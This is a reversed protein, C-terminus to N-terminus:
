YVIYDSKVGFKIEGKTETGNCNNNNTINRNYGNKLEFIGTWGNLISQNLIEIKISDNNSLKNLKNLMLKVAHTSMAKKIGKRYKIFEYLTDILEKNDTYSEILDDIETKRKEKKNNNKSNVTINDKVKEDLPRSKKSLPDQSKQCPTNVKEDIPYNAIYIRREEIQKNYENRIVEVKVYGKKNLQSVWRSITEPSVGYLEAFYGNTAWCYGKENALATIEGYLLKANPKLEKDYRVNAPIIAYYSRNM